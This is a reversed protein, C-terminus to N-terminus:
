LGLVFRALDSAIEAAAGGGPGGNRVYCVVTYRAPGDHDFVLGAFIGDYPHSDAPGTGTKGGMKWEPGLRDRIGKSSGIAVADLMAVELQDATTRSMLNSPVSTTHLSSLVMVGTKGIACLFGSLQELSVTIDTEGISLSSAWDADSTQATLSVCAPMSLPRGPKGSGCLPFGFRALDGLVADSGISRRLLLALQRGPEDRGQVLLEHINPANKRFQPDISDEHELWSAALMLKVTSLPLISAHPLAPQPRVGGGPQSATGAFAVTKGTHVNQMIAVGVLARALLLRVIEENAAPCVIGKKLASACPSSAPFREQRTRYALADAALLCACSFLVGGLLLSGARLFDIRPSSNATPM